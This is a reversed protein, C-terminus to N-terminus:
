FFKKGMLQSKQGKGGVDDWRKILNAIIYGTLYWKFWNKSVSKQLSRTEESKNGVKGKEEM